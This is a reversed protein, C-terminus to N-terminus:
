KLSSRHKYLQFLRRRRCPQLYYLLNAKLSEIRLLHGRIQEYTRADLFLNM